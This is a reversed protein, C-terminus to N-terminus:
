LYELQSKTMSKESAFGSPAELLPRYRLHWLAVWDCDKNVLLIYLPISSQELDREVHLSPSRNQVEKRLLFCGLLLGNTRTFPKRTSCHWLSNDGRLSAAWCLWRWTGTEPPLGLPANVHAKLQPCNTPPAPLDTGPSFCDITRAGVLARLRAYASFPLVMTHRWLKSGRPILAFRARMNNGRSVASLPHVRRAFLRELLKTNWPM